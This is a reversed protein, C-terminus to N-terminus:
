PEKVPSYVAKVPGIMSNETSDGSLAPQDPSGEYIFRAEAEASAAAGGIAIEGTYLVRNKWRLSGEVFFRYTGTPVANSKADTLDWVYTLAGSRPTAGSIADVNEMGALGSKEVWVPISDPRNKYGGDATFRTAYLTKIHRADMDEIWVAFQNSAYGSQRTFDFSITVVPAEEPLAGPPVSAKDRGGDSACASLLLIIFAMVILAIPKYKRM